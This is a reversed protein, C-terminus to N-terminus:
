CAVVDECAALNELGDQVRFNPLADYEIQGLDPANGAQLQNFFNQYTGSNGNPGTQVEVQIDPNGENWVAVADEIGPIWSTFTLTVDEGAPECAAAAGDASTDGAACGTLALAASTLLAATVARKTYRM